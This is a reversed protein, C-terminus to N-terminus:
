KVVEVNAKEISAYEPEHIVFRKTCSVICLLGLIVLLSILSRWKKRM